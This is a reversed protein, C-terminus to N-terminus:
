GGGNPNLTLLFYAPDNASMVAQGCIEYSNGSFPIESFAIEGVAARMRPLLDILNQQLAMDPIETLPRGVLSSGGGVIRDFALNTAIVRDDIANVAIAPVPLMRVINAAEVDRNAIPGSPSDFGSSQVVRTLASNMNSVLAELQPYQYSTKLDDRGERLADDLERGVSEVPHEILRILFFFLFFGALMAIALTKVFLGFTQEPSMALTGADYLVVAYAAISQNGTDASYFTIPVAVGLTTSDVFEAYEREERRVKNVFPKNAFEGRKGAPAIVTGDKASIIFAGTVGEELEAARIDISVENREAIFRKNTERMNRAITKARRVSEAQINERTTTVIPIISLSTVAVVYLGVMALIAWRYPLAQATAYLGPMAVTEIYHQIKALPGTALGPSMQALQQEAPEQYAQQAHLQAGEPSGYDQQYMPQPAQQLNVAANGAWAPATPYNNQPVRANDAIQLVDFLVDHLGFKDGSNLRQNQIRVGNVFTGNRSNLDSLIIKEQIVLVSAHEKSVSTSAIKVECSSGRGITHKGDKLQFITGAQPGTLIRIAWM